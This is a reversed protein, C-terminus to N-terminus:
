ANCAHKLIFSVRDEVPCRPVEIPDYEHRRYFGLTSEYVEVSHDFTNDREDDTRYIDRWPPLIFVQQYPYTRIVRRVQDVNMAGAALLLGAADVIGREFFAPSHEVSQYAKLEKEFIKRAFELAPPRPSLGKQKRHRIITRAADEGTAYGLHRLEEIVATKGAGPGGTLVIREM